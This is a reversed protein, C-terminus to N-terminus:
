TINEYTPTLVGKVYTFAQNLIEDETQSGDIVFDAEINDWDYHQSETEYVETYNTPDGSGLARQALIDFPVDLEILRFNRFQTLWQGELEYRFDSIIPVFHVVEDADDEGCFLKKRLRITEAMNGVFCFDNQERLLRAVEFLFSRPKEGAVPTKQITKVIDVLEDYLPSGFLPSNGLLRVVIEHIAYMQRDRYKDGQIDKRVSALEYLPLAFYLHDPVLKDKGPFSEQLKRELNKGLTTKGSGARGKIGIVTINDSNYIMAENYWNIYGKDVTSPSNM